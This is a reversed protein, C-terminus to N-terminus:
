YDGHQGSSKLVHSTLYFPGSGNVKAEIEARRIFSLARLNRETEAALDADYRDGVAQPLSPRGVLNCAARAAVKGAIPPPM